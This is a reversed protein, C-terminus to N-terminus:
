AGSSFGWGRIKIEKLKKITQKQSLMKCFQGPLIHVQWGAKASWDAPIIPMDWSQNRPKRLYVRFWIQMHALIQWQHWTRLVIWAQRLASFSLSRPQSTLEALAGSPKRGQMVEQGRLLAHIPASHFETTQRLRLQMPKLSSEQIGVWCLQPDQSASFHPARYTPSRAQQSAETDEQLPFSIHTLPSEAQSSPTPASPSPIQFLLSLGTEKSWLRSMGWTQMFSCVKELTLVKQSGRHKNGGIFPDIEPGSDDERM